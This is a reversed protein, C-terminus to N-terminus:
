FRGNMLDQFRPRKKKGNQVDSILKYINKNIQDRNNIKMAKDIAAKSEEDRCAVLLNVAYNGLLSINDPAIKLAKESYLLAKDLNGLNVAEISAELPINFNVQDIELASELMELAKEHQGMRQHAKAIGFMSEWHDPCRTLIQEFEQISQLLKQKTKGNFSKKQFGDLHILKAQRKCASTFLKGLEELEEPSLSQDIEEELQKFITGNLLDNVEQPLFEKPYDSFPNLVIPAGKTITFFDQSKLTIYPVEGKIVKKDHIRSLSSFIGIHGSDLTVFNVTANEGDEEQIPESGDTLIYLDAWLLKTYFEETTRPDNVANLISQELENAPFDGEKKKKKFLGFM